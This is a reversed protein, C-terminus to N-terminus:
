KKLEFSLEYDCIQYIDGSEIRRLEIQKGNFETGNTSQLDQIYFHGSHYLIACHKRSVNEDRIVFDTGKSSRGIVFRDKDILVRKDELEMQLKPRSRELREQLNDRVDTSVMGPMSAKQQNEVRDETEDAQFSVEDSVFEERRGYSADELESRRYKRTEEEGSSGSGVARKQAIMERLSREIMRDIEIGKSDAHEVARVWLEDDCYFSRLRKDKKM